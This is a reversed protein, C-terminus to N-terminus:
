DYVEFKTYCYLNLYPSIPNQRWYRELFNKITTNPLNVLLNPQEFDSKLLSIVIIPRQYGTEDLKPSTCDDKYKGLSLLKIITTSPLFRKLLFNIKEGRRFARNEETERSGEYSATGVAITYASKAIMGRAWEMELQKQLINLGENTGEVDTISGKVWQHEKSLVTIVPYVNRQEYIKEPPMFIVNVIGNGCIIPSESGNTYNKVGSGCSSNIIQQAIDRIDSPYKEILLLRETSNIPRLKVIRKEENNNLVLQFPSKNLVVIGAIFTTILVLYLSIQRNM